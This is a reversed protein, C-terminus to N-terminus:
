YQVLVFVKRVTYVVSSQMSNHLFSDTEYQVYTSFNWFWCRHKLFCYFTQIIISKGINGLGTGLSHVRFRSRLWKGCQWGNKLLFNRFKPGQV